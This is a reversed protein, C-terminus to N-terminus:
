CQQARWWQEDVEAAGLAEERSFAHEVFEGPPRVAHETVYHALGRPWACVGNTLQLSGKDRKNGGRCPSYGM